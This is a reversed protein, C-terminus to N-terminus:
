AEVERDTPEPDAVERDATEFSARDGAPYGADPEDWAALGDRAHNGDAVGAQARARAMLGPPATWWPALNEPWDWSYRATPQPKEAPVPEQYRNGGSWDSETNM